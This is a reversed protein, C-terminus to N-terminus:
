SEPGCGCRIVKIKLFETAAVEDRCQRFTKGGFGIFEPAKDRRSVLMPCARRKTCSYKRTAAESASRTRRKRCLVVVPSAERFLYGDLEVVRRTQGLKPLQDVEDIHGCQALMSRRDGARLEDLVGEARDWAAALLDELL